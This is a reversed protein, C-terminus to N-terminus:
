RRRRFVFKAVDGTVIVPILWEAMSQIQPPVALVNWEFSFISDMYIATWWFGFPLVILYRGLSTASWKDERAMQTTHMISEIRKIDLEASMRDISNEANLKMVYAQRAQSALGELVGGGLLRIFFNLM